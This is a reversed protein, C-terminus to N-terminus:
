FFATKEVVGVMLFYRIQQCPDPSPVRAPM